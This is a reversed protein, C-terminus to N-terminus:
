CPKGTITFAAWYYPHNYLKKDPEMKGLKYVEDEVVICIEPPLQTLFAEYWEKLQQVTLEKLWQTAEALAAAETKGSQRRRYFEIMVLAAAASKVTWLTSVVHAVGQSLFGSVLGVYETTITQNGTIATECASLTVLNYSKLTKKCIEELTLKEGDALALESKEPNRFNHIGHGTFHFISYEASLADEVQKKTAHKSKFRKGNDFMQSIAESEFKALNLTDDPDEVNLLYDIPNPQRQQLNIGIQASPLYTITFDGNDSFLAHVPFRHLERHPILILQTIGKLEKEIAPINLINELKELRQEMGERWSHNSRSQEDKSRYETYQQNWDKVWNEFERLRQASAPLEEENVLTPTTMLIPEPANHKLIFTTLAAPSLHWYIIATTRNLLKQIEKWSPSSFENTWAYLLWTLCANKGHEAIELAKVIQGSQVALDVTLQNFGVFKLALQKKKDPSKADNQLRRLLDSGRRKLEEAEATQKLGLLPKFLEQLVELHVEPFDQTLTRLAENYEAVAKRWYPFPKSDKLLGRFYYAIGIEQHLMGWGEPETDQHVYKLGEQYSALKGEYGRQNLAPNNQAISNLSISLPLCHLSEGAVCGRNIWAQWYDLKIQLARDFMAIAEEYCELNLLAIGQDNFAEYDDPKIEPTKDDGAVVEEHWGLSFLAIHRNNLTTRDDPKIELAKDFSALAEQYRELNFLVVGRNNWALHEDPKITLCKDFSALAEEYRGLNSLDLGRRYWAKSNDTSKEASSVQNILAQIIVQPDTTEIGLQQAVVQVLNADQQLRELLEDLTITEM